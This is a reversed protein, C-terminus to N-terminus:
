LKRLSKTYKTDNKAPPQRCIACKDWLQNIDRTRRGKDIHTKLNKYVCGRCLVKGCCVMFLSENGNLPVPLMCIPCEEKEPIPAYLDIDKTEEQANSLLNDLRAELELSVM